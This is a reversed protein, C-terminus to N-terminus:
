MSYKKIITEAKKKAIIKNLMVTTNTFRFLQKNDNSYGLSFPLTARSLEYTNKLDKITKRSESSSRYIGNLSVM